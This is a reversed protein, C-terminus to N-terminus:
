SYSFLEPITKVVYSTYPNLHIYRSLHILQEDSEVTIAKFRGQFLPGKRKHKVNFCSVYSDSLNAMFKSIGNDALQRLILHLHNVKFLLTVM